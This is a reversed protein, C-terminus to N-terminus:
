GGAPRPALRPPEILEALIRRVTEGVGREVEPSLGRGPGVRSVEVGYVVLRAPRRGLAEALELAQGLSFGHTSVGGLDPLREGPGPEWRVVSGPPRGSRVADAVLLRPSGTLHETLEALDRVGVTVPLASADAAGVRRAVELGAADDSRDDNGIGLLRDYSAM